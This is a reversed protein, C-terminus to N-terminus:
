LKLGLFYTRIMQALSKGQPQFSIRVMTGGAPKPCPEPKQCVGEGIIEESYVAKNTM